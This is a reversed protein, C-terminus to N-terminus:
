ELRGGALAGLRRLADDLERDFPRPCSIRIFSDFQGANSFIAGPAIRIGVALAAEFLRESRVGEPLAVWLLLGGEPPSLRTGEPFYRAIADATAERQTRLRERFQFLHRDFGGSALFEAAVLQPLIENHRSQTFKLMKIRSAWKGAAMWGLRLGPALVKNLSPCYIVNGERDWAKIPRTGAAEVLERYPEDEIIAVGHRGCISVLAAKREDDMVSGLPNQLHPVVVVAKVNGYASLAMDLAELSLGTTPSTPIELARLGLSELIQLLGFFAPSEIAITDGPQAVARLALNVAEVGGMTVIVEDPPVVVGASLARRAVTQRFEPAGSDAGVETLLTPRRRLLRTTLSQLRTTPYLGAVATAGGLNLAGPCASAREIVRSVREHLGVYRAEDPLSTMGPERVTALRAVPRRVFYGARPRASLLGAEELRRFTQVATSLSVGHRSMFARVSPMRDGPALTGAGIIRRYHEALREYLPEGPMPLDFPPHDPFPM